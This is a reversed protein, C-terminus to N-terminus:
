RKTWAKLLLRIRKRERFCAFGVLLVGAIVTGPEPIPVVEGSELQVAGSVGLNSWYINSLFTDSLRSNFIIQDAGGGQLSGSWNDVTLLGDVYVGSNATAGFELISSGNGMDLNSDANLTLSLLVESFGDTSFTGGSLNMATSNSIQDDDGLILTGGRIDILNADINNVSEDILVTGSGDVSLVGIGTIGSNSQSGFIAVSDDAEFALNPANVWDANPNVTLSSNQLLLTGKTSSLGGDILADANLSTNTDAFALTGGNFLNLVGNITATNNGSGDNVIQVLASPGTVNIADNIGLTFSANASHEDLFTITGDNSANISVSDASSGNTTFDRRYGVIAEGGAVNLNAKSGMTFDRSSGLLSTGNNVNVTGNFQFDHATALPNFNDYNLFYMGGDNNVTLLADAAITMNGGQRLVAGGEGGNVTLSTGAGLFNQGSAVAGYTFNAPSGTNAIAYLQGNEVTLPGTFSNNGNTLYFGGEGAKILAGSGGVVGSLTTWTQAASNVTHTGAAFTGNGTLNLSAGGSPNVSNTISVDGALTYNNALNRVSGFTDVTGGNITFTGSGLAGDNAIQLTGSNLVTSGNFTNNQTLRLVGTGDKVLSSNANGGQVISNIVSTGAGTFRIMSDNGISFTSRTGSDVGHTFGEAATSNNSITLNVGNPSVINVRNASSSSLHHANPGAITLFAGGTQNFTLARNGSGGSSTFNYVRNGSGEIVMTGVTRNNNVVVNQAVNSPDDGFYAKDGVGNPASGQWNNNRTWDNSSHNNTWRVFDDIPVIEYIGGGLSILRADGWGVFTINSLNGPGTGFSGLTNDLVQLRTDGSGSFSGAWNEISLIGGSRTMDAFTLYGGPTGLYDISSNASLTFLGLTNAYGNTQLRGGSLTLNMSDAFVNNAGLAVTGNAVTMTGSLTNSGTFTMRGTGDKTFNGSGTLAGGFTTATNNGGSTLTVGNAINVNGGSVGGGSLSGITETSNINLLAGANNAMFVNGSDSLANSANAVTVVGEQIYFDGTYSHNGTLLLLGEGVKYLDGVGTIQGSQTSNNIRLESGTDAFLNLDRSLNIAQQAELWFGGTVGFTVTDGFDNVNLQRNAIIQQWNDNAPGLTNFLLTINDTSATGSDGLEIASTSNGFATEGFVGVSSSSILTGSRLTTTGTYTHDAFYGLETTGQGAYVVDTGTGSITGEVRITAGAATQLTIENGSGLISGSLLLDSSADAGITSDGALSIQGAWENSGDLNRLAGLGGLGQGSLSLSENSVTIGGGLGLTAGSNVTTGSATGGLAQNSRAELLGGNVVTAGTFTNNGELILTGLRSKTIGGSGSIDGSILTTAGIDANSFLINDQLNVGGLISFNTKTYHNIELNNELLLNLDSAFAHDAVGTPTKVINIRSTVLSGPAEFVLTGQELTYSHEGGFFASGITRTGNLAVTQSSDVTAFADSFFVTSGASPVSDQDWNDGTQWATTGAENDWYFSNTGGDLSIKLNRVEYIQNAGGTGGTFGLILEEPRGDWGPVASIDIGDIVKVFGTGFGFEVWVTVLNDASVNVRTRRFQEADQDPRFNQGSFDMQDNSPSFFDSLTGGDATSGVYYYGTQGDGQGRVGIENKRLNSDAFGGNRGENANTFNGWVDYGVGVMGGALGDVGGRNAYGLSGGFAGPSFPANADALFVTMGDAPVSSLTSWFAFDFEFTVDTGDSPIALNLFASNAQDGTRTTLRLWGQGEPDITADATEPDAAVPNSAATLRPGPSTNGTEFEWGAAGIGRFSEEYIFQGFGPVPMLMFLALVTFIKASSSNAYGAFASLGKM